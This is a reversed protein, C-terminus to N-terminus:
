PRKRRPALLFMGAVLLIAGTGLVLGLGQAGTIPMAPQKPDIVNQTSILYNNETEATVPNDATATAASLEFSFDAVKQYGAPVKTESLTYTGAALDEFCVRGQNDSASVLATGNTLTLTFEAGPLPAGEPTAKTFCYGYTQVKTTDSPSKTTEDYPNPNFTITATNGTVEDASRSFAEATLTAEYTIVIPAAPNALIHAKTFEVTYGTASATLTYDAGTVAPTGNIKISAPDIQLGATPKDTVKFTAKTSDAPYNPIATTVTFPVKDGVSYKDTSEAANDGVGKDISVSTSKAAMTVAEHPKYGNNDNVAPSLDVLMNQYVKATGSTSTVRVLYYGSGLTLSASDGVAVATKTANTLAAAIKSAANQADTGQTFTAGDSTLAAIEGVTDFDAPLGPTMVYTLNNAADVDADAILYASVTDGDILGTITVTSDAVDTPSTPDAVAGTAGLAVAAAGAVLAAAWRTLTKSPTSSM